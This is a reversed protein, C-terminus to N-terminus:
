MLGTADGRMSSGGRSRTQIRAVQRSASPRAIVWVTLHSTMPAGLERMAREWDAASPLTAFAARWNEAMQVLTEDLCPLNARSAGLQRARFMRLPNRHAM